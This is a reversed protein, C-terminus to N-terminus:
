LHRVVQGETVMDNAPGAVVEWEGTPGIQKAELVADKPTVQSRIAAGTGLILALAAGATALIASQQEATIPLGFSVLLALVATILAIVSSIIVSPERQFLNKM